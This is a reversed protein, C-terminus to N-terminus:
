LKHLKKGRYKVLPFYVQNEGNKLLLIPAARTKENLLYNVNVENGLNITNDSVVIHGIIEPPVQVKRGRVVFTQNSFNNARIFNRVLSYKPESRFFSIKNDSLNPLYVYKPKSNPQPKPKHNSLPKNNSRPKPRPAILPQLTMESANPQYNALLGKKMSDRKGKKSRSSGFM